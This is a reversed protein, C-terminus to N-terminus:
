KALIADRVANTAQYATGQLISIGRVSEADFTRTRVPQLHEFYENAANVLGWGTGRVDAITPSTQWNVMVAHQVSKERQAESAEERIPFAAQLIEDVQSEVLTTNLLKDIETELAVKYRFTVGLADRMATIKGTMDGTHRLRFSSVAGRLFLRVMNVCAPRVPGIHGTLSSNGDHSNQIMLFMPLFGGDDGPVQVDASPIRLTVGVQRGGRLSWASDGLADGTDLLVNGLALADRNQTVSYPQGVAGLPQETDTRVTAFMGPMTIRGRAEGKRQYFLPRKEVTFDLGLGTLMDEVTLAGDHQATVVDRVGYRLFPLERTTMAVGTKRDLTEVAM